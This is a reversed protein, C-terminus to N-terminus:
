ATKYTFDFYLISGAALEEGGDGYLIQSNDSRNQGIFVKNAALDPRIMTNMWKCYLNPFVDWMGLSGSAQNSFETGEAITFPLSFGVRGDPRLVSAVEVSGQVHCWNGVKQYQLVDRTSLLTVIGSTSPTCTVTYVDEEYDDLTDGGISGFKIGNKAIIHNAVELRGGAGTTGSWDEIQVADPNVWLETSPTNVSTNDANSLRIWGSSGSRDAVFM